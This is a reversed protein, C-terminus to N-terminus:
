FRIWIGPAWSWQNHSWNWAGARWRYHGHPQRPRHEARMPPHHNRDHMSDKHGTGGMMGGGMHHPAADAPTAGLALPAALSLAAAFMAALKTKKITMDTEM